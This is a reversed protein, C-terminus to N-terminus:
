KVNVKAIHLLIPYHIIHNKKEKMLFKLAMLENYQCWLFFFSCVFINDLSFLFHSLFRTTEKYKSSLYITWPGGVKNMTGMQDFHNKILFNVRCFNVTNTKDYVNEAIWIDNITKSISNFLHKSSFNVSIGNHVATQCFYCGNEYHERGWMWVCM